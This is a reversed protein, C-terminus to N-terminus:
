DILVKRGLLAMVDRGKRTSHGISCISDINEKSFGVENNFVLLTAPARTGTIDKKTLVFELTPEVGQKYENDEANQILEMLFHIDKQYLEASLSSVAHHLDLTLPNPVKKGISFKKTRIEAIHQIADFRAGRGPNGM